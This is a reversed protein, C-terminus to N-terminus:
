FRTLVVPVLLSSPAAVLAADRWEPTRLPADPVPPAAGEDDVQRVGSRRAYLLVVAGVAVAAAGAVLGVVGATTVASSPSCPAHHADSKLLCVLPPALENITLAWDGVIFLGGGGLALVLGANFTVMSVTSVRYSLREGSATGLAFTGTSRVDRGVFRYKAHEPLAADCPAECAFVWAQRADDFRELTVPRDADVHVPASLEEDDAASATRPLASVLFPIL